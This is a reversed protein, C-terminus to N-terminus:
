FTYDCDVVASDCYAISIIVHGDFYHGDNVHQAHAILMGKHVHTNSSPMAVCTWSGTIQMRIPSRLSGVQGSRYILATSDRNYGADDILYIPLVNTLM